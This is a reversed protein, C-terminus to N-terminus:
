ILCDLLASPNSCPTLFSGQICIGMCALHIRLRLSLLLCPFALCGPLGEWGCMSHSPSYLLLGFCIGMVLYQFGPLRFARVARLSYTATPLYLYMCM